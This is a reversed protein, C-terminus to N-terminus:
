EPMFEFKDIEHDLYFTSFYSNKSTLNYIGFIRKNFYMSKIKNILLEEINRGFVRCSIFFNEIIINQSNQIIAAGVLGMDGYKDSVSITLVSYNDNMLLNYINKASYRRGSMNFQNTRQSLEAIRECENEKAYDCIAITALSNNYEEVSIDKNREKERNKQERYLETRNNISSMGLFCKKLQEFFNMNSYDVKIAVINPLATKVYELEYDSDDIFVFSDYNLNLEQSIQKINSVKDLMNIKSSIIYSFDLPMNLTNFAEEINECKNKSCLCILVGRNHLEILEMQLKKTNEGMFITEEGAIGHWLVNDCDCIIVKKNCSIPFFYRNLMELLNGITKFNELILDSDYIEFGFMKELEVIFQIFKLSDFGLQMLNTDLPMKILDDSSIHFNKELIKYVVNIYTNM